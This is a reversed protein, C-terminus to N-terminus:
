FFSARIGSRVSKMLPYAGRTYDKREPDGLILNTFTLLNYGQAYVTLDSLGLSTLFSRKGLNYELHIEKLRLYDANRWFHGPTRLDYGEAGAGGAWAYQPIGGGGDFYHLTAHNAEEQRDPRWYNLQTPKVSWSGLEFENEFVNNFIVWKGINGQFMMNLGWGKYKLGGSFSYTIPPYQSGEIPYKDRATITGDVDYDLFVHDGVNLQNPPIQTAHNHIDDVTTLYESNIHLVGAAGTPVGLPVNWGEPMGLQKGAYKRYDPAYLLDDRYVIRNENFGLMGKFYYNLDSKTKLNLGAEVEFGHKKLEGLNLEKFSNGVLFTVNQPEILMKSRYEDYLDVNLTFKNNFLGLELGIDRKRAEEWQANANAGIDEAIYNGTTYDCRSNAHDSGVLGDSYRLKLTNIWPLAEQFFAEESVMWGVAGSPFLGYRNSPAFRESGTYGVNFEILYKYLYNYTLRGVWAEYYYPFDLELNKQQRNFLALGTVNHKGEAFSRAWNLSAEYYLETYYEPQLSSITVNIPPPNYVELTEDVREWPNQGTGIRDWHLYYQPLRDNSYKTLMNYYTSLSVKGNFSLGETIFDLKQNLILDNFVRSSTFQRFAGDNYFSYPNEYREGFAKTLRIGKADPYHLDPIEELVWEPFYAPFRAPGTNAIAFWTNTAPNNKNSIDGGLNFALQTTKTLSFDLNGRYNFRNNNHRSDIHGEKIGTFMGAENQYGLSAFYKVKQTGGSININATSIPAYSRTVEDFWNVNPYRLANLRSSPNRYEELIHDPLRETFRQDNMRTVQLMSMTTHSDVFNDVMSPIQVGTSGSFTLKPTQESGRRTTVLIVGNAGRAGYVATASADKLVSVTEIENPDLNRFDREVGDVMVLPASGSWSSLGRIIIESHNVGSLKGALANTVNNSGSMTLSETSIQSIAGVVSEKKQVGYGVVVVQELEMIDEKLVVHVPVGTTVLVEQNVYGIYSFVLTSSKEPISFSFEGNINTTTGLTTGKVVVTVGILPEGTTLDIVKGSVVNQQTIADITIASVTNVICLTFVIFFLVCTPKSKRYNFQQFRFNEHHLLWLFKKLETKINKEM